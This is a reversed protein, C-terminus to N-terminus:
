KLMVTASLLGVPPPMPPVPPMPVVPVAPPPPVPAPVAAVVQGPHMHTNFATVIQALYATLATGWVAPQPTIQGGLQVLQGDLVVRAIGKITVTGTLVSITIANQGTVDTITIMQELDDFATTLGTDSRWVKTTPPVPTAPPDPPVPPAEGVAWWGGSWIPRSTDGAEFEIWVGSGIPPIAYFGAAIGAVPACPMAWGTPIPGLLDPVLATIRGQQQPDLNSVVTGRYKGWCRERTDTDADTETTAESM